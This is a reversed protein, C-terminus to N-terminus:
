SCSMADSIANGQKHLTSHHNRSYNLPKRKSKLTVDGAM